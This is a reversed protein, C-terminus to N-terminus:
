VPTAELTRAPLAMLVLKTRSPEFFPPLYLALERESVIRKWFPNDQAIDFYVHNAKVPVEPPPRFNVELPAGPTAARVISQIQSSSALKAFQPLQSAVQREPVDTQVELVFRDCQRMREDHLEAVYLGDERTRLPVSIYHESVTALLLATIRAFLEEFTGGLDRYSFKPLQGPDSDAVFSCLQGALQSLACYAARPAVDGPEVFHHLIPVFGNITSLLLYRTVDMANWELAARGAQRRAEHLSRRRTTMLELLRRMGALLFPSTAVRLCSPV